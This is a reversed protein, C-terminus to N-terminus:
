SVSTDSVVAAATILNRLSLTWATCRDEPGTDTDKRTDACAASAVVDILSAASSALGTTVHVPKTFVLESAPRKVQHSESTYNNTSMRKERQSGMVYPLVQHAGSSGIAPTREDCLASWQCSSLTNHLCCSIATSNPIGHCHCQGRRCCSTMVAHSLWCKQTTQLTRGAFM